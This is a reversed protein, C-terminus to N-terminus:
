ESLILSQSAGTDRLLKIPVTKGELILEGDLMFDDFTCQKNENCETECHKELNICDDKLSSIFSVAKFDKLYQSQGDKVEKSKKFCDRELHGLKGCYFCAKTKYRM